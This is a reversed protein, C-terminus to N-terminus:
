PQILDAVKSKSNVTPVAIGVRSGAPRMQNMANYADITLNLTNENVKFYELPDVGQADAVKMLVDTMARAAPKKFGAKELKSHIMNVKDPNFTKKIDQTLEALLESSAEPLPFEITADKLYAVLTDQVVKYEVTNGFRDYLSSSM